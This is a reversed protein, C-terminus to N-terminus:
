EEIHLYYTAATEFWLTDGDCTSGGLELVHDGPSLPKLRAYHGDGVTYMEGGPIGWQTLFSDEPNVYAQFPDPVRVYLDDLMQDFGGAIVEEGDVRLTLTCTHALGDDFWAAIDSKIAHISQMNPFYEPPFVSWRNILPFYLQKGAPITCHRTVPGGYTGALFWVPGEQGMACQAGTMDAVPGTTYPQELAWRMWDRALEKSPPLSKATEDQSLAEVAVGETAEEGLDIAADNSAGCATMLSGILIASVLNQFQLRNSM